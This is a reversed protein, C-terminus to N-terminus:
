ADIAVPPPTPSNVLVAPLGTRAEYRSVFDFLGRSGLTARDLGLLAVAREMADPTGEIEVLDDMRPYRELRVMAGDLQYQWVFRDIALTIRFGARALVNLMAEPDAVPASHEERVKYGDVQQSQGKWDLSAEVVRHGDRYARVRLVHDRARLTGAADDLRRDELVGVFVREAGLEDLRAVMTEVSPVVGKLEREIM